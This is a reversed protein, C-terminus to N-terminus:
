CQLIFLRFDDAWRSDMSGSATSPGEPQGHLTRKVNGQLKGYSDPRVRFHAEM